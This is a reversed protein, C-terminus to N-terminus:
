KIMLGPLWLVVQPFAIMIAMVILDLGIIPYVAKYIDLM